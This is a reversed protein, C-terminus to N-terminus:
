RGHVACAEVEGDQGHKGGYRCRSSDESDFNALASKSIGRIGDFGVLSVNDVEMEIRHVTNNSAVEILRTSGGGTSSEIGARHWHTILDALM